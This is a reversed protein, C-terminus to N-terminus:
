LPIPLYDSQGACGAIRTGEGNRKEICYLHAGQRADITVTCNSSTCASSSLTEGSPRIVRVVASAAGGLAINFSFSRLDAAAVGGLRAAPWQSANGLGFWFGYDKAKKQTVTFGGDELAADHLGTATPSAYGDKDFNAGYLEDCVGRHTADPSRLYAAACGTIVEGAFSRMAGEGDGSDKCNQVGDPATGGNTAAECQPFIRGYYVGKAPAYYAYDRIWDMLGTLWSDPLNSSGTLTQVQGLSLAAIGAMFPQIGEGWLSGPDGGTIYSKTGSTGQYARGLTIQSGSVTTCSYAQTELTGANFFGVWSNVCTPAGTVTANNNTVIANTGIPTLISSQWVKNKVTGAATLRQPAWRGTLATNLNATYTAANTPDIDACLKHDRARLSEERVDGLPATTTLLGSASDFTCLTVLAALRGADPSELQRAALGAFSRLRPGGNLRVAWLIEQWYNIFPCELWRDALTRAYNLYKVNRTRAWMQYHALVNDYYNANTSQNAWRALDTSSFTAYRLNSTTGTLAQWVGGSQIAINTSTAGTCTINYAAYRTRALADTYEIVINLGNGSPCGFLTAFDTGGSGTITGSNYTVSVRGTQYTRWFAAFDTDILGGFFDSLYRHRSDAWAWPNSGYKIQPGMITGIWSETAIVVGNSDTAVAGFDVTSSGTLGADDTVTLKLGYSGTVLGSLTATSSTRGSVVPSSPGSTIAWSYTLTPTDSLSYSQTGQVVCAHGARCAFLASDALSDAGRVVAVPAYGPATNYNPNTLSLNARGTVDDGNNALRWDGLDATTYRQIVGVPAVGSGWKIWALRGTLGANGITAAGSFPGAAMTNFSCISGGGCVGTAVTATSTEYATIGVTKAAVLRQVVLVYDTWGSPITVCSENGFGSGGASDAVSRFCAVRGTRLFFAGHPFAFFNTDSGPYTTMGTLRVSIWMDTSTTSAATWSGTVTALNIQQGGFLSSALLLLILHKM